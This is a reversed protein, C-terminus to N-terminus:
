MKMPDSDVGGGAVGTVMIGEDTGAHQNAQSHHQQQHDSNLPSGPISESTSMPSTPLNFELNNIESPAAAPSTLHLPPLAPPLSPVSSISASGFSGHPLASPLDHGGTPQQGATPATLRSPGPDSPTPISLRIPHRAAVNSHALHNHIRILPSKGSCILYILFIWIM